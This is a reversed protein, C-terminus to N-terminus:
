GIIVNDDFPESLVVTFGYEGDNRGGTECLRINDIRIEEGNAGANWYAFIRIFNVRTLDIPQGTQKAENFYLYITNWGNVLEARHNMGIFWEYEQNDITGSSTLELIFCSLNGIIKEVDSFYVELAVTDMNSADIRSFSQTSIFNGQSGLTIAACGSGEAQGTTSKPIGGFGGDCNNIVRVGLEDPKEITSPTKVFDPEWMDWIALRDYLTVHAGDSIEYSSGNYRMINIGTFSGGNILLQTGGINDTGLNIALTNTSSDAKLMSNVGYAFVREMHEGEAEDLTIAVTQRRSIDLFRGFESGDAYSFSNGRRVPVTPNHLYDLICGNKGGALIDTDYCFATLYRIYHNDCDTFDIGTGATTISSCVAYVDKGTGRIATVPDHAATGNATMVIRLGYIGSSPALTILADASKGESGSLYTSLIQTGKVTNDQDRCAVTSSGRLEVGTPVTVPHDLHYTGAPLYVIGGTTGAYDLLAQLKESIEEKSSRGYTFGYVRSNPRVYSRDSATESAYASLADTDYMTFGNIGGLITTGATKVVGESKNLIGIESGDLYSDSVQVGWRSDMANEDVVFAQTCEEVTLNYFSGCYRSRGGVVIHVGIKCDTVRIGSSQPWDLDGFILGETHERTYGMIDGVPQGYDMWISPSVTLNRYPDVDASNALNVGAKLCTMYVTDIYLQEHVLTGDTTAGIGIYGNVITVYKITQAMYRDNSGGPIYFTPSYPIVESLTQEPYFVTLGVVGASGLIEFLGKETNVSEDPKALIVTIGEFGKDPKKWDGCLTVFSPITVTDTILYDGKPLYVTGGGVKSCDNLAKQIGATSDAKGTPDVGYTDPQVKIDAVIIERSQDEPVIAFAGLSRDEPVYAQTVIESLDEPISINGDKADRVYHTFFYDVAMVTHDDTCGIIVIKHVKRYYKIIFQSEGLLALADASQSRNTMGILIEYQSDIQAADYNQVWDEKIMVRGPHGKLIEEISSRLYSGAKRIDESCLEARILTYQFAGTEDLLSVMNRAETESDTETQIPEPEEPKQGCSVITSAMLILTLVIAILRKM